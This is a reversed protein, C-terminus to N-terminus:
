SDFLIGHTLFQCVTMKREKKIVSTPTQPQRKTANGGESFSRHVRIVKALAETPATQRRFTKLEGGNCPPESKKRWKKRKCFFHGFIRQPQV